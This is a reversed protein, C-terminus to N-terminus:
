VKFQDIQTGIQLISEEMKGSIDSLTEGNTVILAAGSKMEDISDQVVMTANQLNKIEELIAKNGSSMEASATKVELTSDNMTHLADSIQKSGENQETMADKIQHVLTDTEIIGQSVANFSASSEATAKVVDTISNHINSLQTGITKSQETSTESLKRIEDAVVSFGKGAEGAHAAEIAANMALLNTQSAINAITINAESLMESQEKILEIRENANNQINVGNTVIEQLNTFSSAMKEVIQNVSSINGVMEEVAASAQIVGSAQTEIMHELSAINSAIENVAGATEEVSAAQSLMQSHVDDISAQIQRISTITGQTNKQLQTDASVLTAKSDKIDSVISQLKETFINFSNVVSGIETKSKIEIRKTLDANGQAIGSITKEVIKLPKLTRTLLFAVSILMLFFVIAEITGTIKRTIESIGYVQTDAVSFGLGWPTNHVPRYVIFEQASDLGKIWVSGSKGLSLNRAVPIIEEYGVPVDTLFNKNMIYDENKHQMVNGDSSILWCYGTEGLTVNKLHKRITNLTMVGSILAVTKGNAKVAKAVHCVTIGTAKSVVPNDIYFDKGDEFIAKFYDRDKINGSTGVDTYFIGDPGCVLIYDFIASHSNTRVKAWNVIAQIDGTMATNSQTYMNMEYICGDIFNTIALSYADVIETCTNEYEARAAQKVRSLLISSQTVNAALLFFTIALLLFVALKFQKKKKATYNKM